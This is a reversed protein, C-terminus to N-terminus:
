RPDEFRGGRVATAFLAEIMADDSLNPSLITTPLSLSSALRWGTLGQALAGGPQDLIALADYGALLGELEDAPHPFMRGIRIVAPQLGSAICAQRLSTAKAMLAPTAAIGIVGGEKAEWVSAFAPRVSLDAPQLDDSRFILGHGTTQSFATIAANLEDTGATFWVHSITAANLSLGTQQEPNDQIIALLGTEGPDIDSFARLLAWDPFGTLLPTRDIAAIARIRTLIYSWLADADFSIEHVRDLDDASSINTTM